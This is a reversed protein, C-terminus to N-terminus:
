KIAQWLWSKRSPQERAIFIDNSLFLQSAQGSIFITRRSAISDLQTHTNNPLPIRDSKEILLGNTVTQMPPLFHIGLPHHKGERLAKLIEEKTLVFHM